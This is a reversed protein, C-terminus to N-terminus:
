FKCGTIHGRGWLRRTVRYTCAECHHYRCGGVHLPLAGAGKKKNKKKRLQWAHLEGAGTLPRALASAVAAAVEERVLRRVADESLPAGGGTSRGAQSEVAAPPPSQRPTESEAMASFFCFRFSGIFVAAM